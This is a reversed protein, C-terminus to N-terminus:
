RQKLISLGPKSCNCRKKLMNKKVLSIIAQGLTEINAFLKNKSDTDVYEGHIEPNLECDRRIYPLGDIKTTDPWWYPGM